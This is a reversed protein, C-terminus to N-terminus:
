HYELRIASASLGYFAALKQLILASPMLDGTEYRSITVYHVGAAKGVQKQTLKRAIRLERLSKAKM